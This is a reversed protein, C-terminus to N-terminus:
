VIPAGGVFINQNDFAEVLGDYGGVHEGNFIIQPVTKANPFKAMFEEQNELADYEEFKIGQNNFLEKAKTCYSCTPSTWVENM